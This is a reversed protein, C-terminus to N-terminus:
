LTSGGQSTPNVLHTMGSIFHLYNVRMPDVNYLEIGPQLTTIAAHGVIKRGQRGMWNRTRVGLINHFILPKGEHNGIYLMIHGETWLLTLYPIGHKLIMSEKEEPSLDKMDIFVGEERAQDESHRPLWTGFPAYLDRITASSDRNQYM